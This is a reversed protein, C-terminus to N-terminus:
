VCASDEEEKDSPHSSSMLAMSTGLYVPSLSARFPRQMGSMEGQGELELSERGGRKM